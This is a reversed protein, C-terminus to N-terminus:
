SHVFIDNECLFEFIDRAPVAAYYPVQARKEETEKEFFEQTVMGIVMGLKNIIPGGSNGPATKASFILFDNHKFDKVKSNIEGKHVLQFTDQTMPVRPYGITVIEDLLTTDEFLYFTNPHYYKSLYILGIDKAQSLKIKRHALVENFINQIQLYKDHVAVHKNTIVYSNVVGDRRVSMVFGTGISPGNPTEVEIKVVSDKYKNVIYSFGFIVNKIADKKALFEALGDNLTFYRGSHGQLISEQFLINNKCLRDLIADVIVIPIGKVGARESYFYLFDNISLRGLKLFTEHNPNSKAFPNSLCKQMVEAYLTPASVKSTFFIIM